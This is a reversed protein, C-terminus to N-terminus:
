YYDSHGLTHTLVHCSVDSLRLKVDVANGMSNRRSALPTQAHGNRIVTFWSSDVSITLIMLIVHQQFMAGTTQRMASTRTGDSCRVCVCRVQLQLLLLFAWSDSVFGRSALAHWFNSWNSTSFRQRQCYESIKM